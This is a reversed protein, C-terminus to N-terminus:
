KHYIKINEVWRSRARILKRKGKSKGILITYANRM